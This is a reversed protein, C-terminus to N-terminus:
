FSLPFVIIRSADASQSEARALTWDAWFIVTRAGGASMIGRQGFIRGSTNIERSPPQGVIRKSTQLAELTRKAVRAANALWTFLRIILLRGHSILTNAMDSNYRWCSSKFVSSM